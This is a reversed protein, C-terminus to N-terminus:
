LLAERRKVRLPYLPAQRLQGDGEGARRHSRVAETAGRGGRPQGRGRERRSTRVQSSM